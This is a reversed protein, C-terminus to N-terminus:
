AGPEASPTPPVAAAKELLAIHERLYRAQKVLANITFTSEVLLADYQALCTRLAAELDAVQQAHADHVDTGGASLSQVLQALVRLRHLGGLSLGQWVNAFLAFSPYAWFGPCRQVFLAWKETCRSCSKSYVLLVRENWFLAEGRVELSELPESTPPFNPIQPVTRV